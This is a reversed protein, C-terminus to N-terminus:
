KKTSDAVPAKTSDAAPAKTSDAAPAAPAPAVETTAAPSDTKAEKSEGSNNCAVFAVSVIALALIVKKM